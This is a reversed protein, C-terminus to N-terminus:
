AIRQLLDAGAALEIDHGVRILDAFVTVLSLTEFPCGILCLIPRSRSTCGTLIRVAAEVAAMVKHMRLRVSPVRLLTSRPGLLCAENHLGFM